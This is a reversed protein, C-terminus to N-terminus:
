ACVGTPYSPLIMFNEIESKYENYIDISKKSIFKNKICEELFEELSNQIYNHEIAFIHLEQLAILQTKIINESNLIDINSM